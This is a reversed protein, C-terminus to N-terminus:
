SVHEAGEEFSLRECVIQVKVPDFRCILDLIGNRKEVVRPPMWLSGM